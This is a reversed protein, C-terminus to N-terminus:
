KQKLNEFERMKLLELLMEKQKGGYREAHHSIYAHAMVEGHGGRKYIHILGRVLMEKDKQTFKEDTDRALRGIIAPAAPLGIQLLLNYIPYQPYEAFEFRSHIFPTKISAHHVLVSAYNRFTSTKYYDMEEIGPLVKCIDDIAEYLKKDDALIEKKYLPQTVGIM